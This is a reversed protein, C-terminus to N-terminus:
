WTYTGRYTDHRVSQARKNMCRLNRLDDNNNIVEIMRDTYMQCM